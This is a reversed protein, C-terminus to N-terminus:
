GHSGTLICICDHIFIIWSFLQTIVVLFPYPYIAMIKQYHLVPLEWRHGGTGLIESGNLDDQNEFTDYKTSISIDKSM